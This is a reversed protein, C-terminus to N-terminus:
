SNIIANHVEREALYVPSKIAHEISKHQIMILFDSYIEYEKTKLVARNATKQTYESYRGLVLYAELFFENLSNFQNISYQLATKFLDQIHKNHIYEKLNYKTKFDGQEIFTKIIQPYNLLYITKNLLKEKSELVYNYEKLKVIQRYLIARQKKLKKALETPYTKGQSIISIIEFYPRNNLVIEM